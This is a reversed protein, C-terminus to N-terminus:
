GRWKRSVLGAIISRISGSGPGVAKPSRLAELIQRRFRGRAEDETEEARPVVAFPAEKTFFKKVIHFGLARYAEFQEEGFFQDGTTEHRFPRIAASITWFITTRM